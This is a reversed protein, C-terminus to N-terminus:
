QLYNFHFMNFFSKQFLFPKDLLLIYNVYFLLSLNRM